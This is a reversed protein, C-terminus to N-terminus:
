RVRVVLKRGAGAALREWAAGIEDFPVVEHDITLRGAQVHDLLRRYAAAREAPPEMATSLGRITARRGLLLGHPLPLPDGAARGINVHVVDLEAAQLAALAPEGWLPDVVVNIGDGGAARIAGAMADVGGELRVTADAGLQAARELAAENRGAAVVHVAGLAKALQVAARGVQGTAGLVLVTDGLTVRAVELVRLATIGTAGLAAALGEDVDGPLPTVAEAPAIAREALAGDHGYGPHLGAVEFRVRTGPAHDGGSVVTGVGEIGPVYPVHPPGDRFRGRSIHLEVPNLTALGVDVLVQGDAPEPEPVDRIAPADGVASIVAARM